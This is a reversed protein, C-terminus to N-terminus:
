ETTKTKPSIARILDCRIEFHYLTTTTTSKDGEEHPVLISKKKTVVKKEETLLTECSLKIITTSEMKVPKKGASEIEIWELEQGEYPKWKTCPCSSQNQCGFVLGCGIALIALILLATRFMCGNGM